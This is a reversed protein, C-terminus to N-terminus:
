MGVKDGPSRFYLFHRGLLVCWCRRTVGNKVKTVWGKVVAKSDVSDLLNGTARQRLVRQLVPLFCVCLTKHSREHKAKVILLVVIDTQVIFL